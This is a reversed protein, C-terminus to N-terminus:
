PGPFPQRFQQSIYLIVFSPLTLWSSALKTRRASVRRGQPRHTAVLQTPSSLRHQRLRGMPINVLSRVLNTEWINEPGHFSAVTTPSSEVINPQHKSHMLVVDRRTCCLKRPNNRPWRAFFVRATGSFDLCDLCFPSRINM